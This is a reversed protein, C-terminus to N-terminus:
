ELLLYSLIPAGPELELQLQKVKEIGALVENYVSVLASLKNKNENYKRYCDLIGPELDIGCLMMGLVVPLSCLFFPFLLVLLICNRVLSDRQALVTSELPLVVENKAKMITDYASNVVNGEQQIVLRAIQKKGESISARLSNLAATKCFGINSSAQQLREREASLDYEKVTASAVVFMQSNVEELLNKTSVSMNM